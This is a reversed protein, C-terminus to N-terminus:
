HVSHSRCNEVITVESLKQKIKDTIDKNRKGSLRSAVLAYGSFVTDKDYGFQELYKSYDLLTDILEELQSKYVM